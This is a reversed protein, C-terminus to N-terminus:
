LIDIGISTIQPLTGTIMEDIRQRGIIDFTLDLVWRKQQFYERRNDFTLDFLAGTVKLQDLANEIREAVKGAGTESYYEPLTIIISVKLVRTQHNASFTRDNEITRENPFLILIDGSDDAVSLDQVKNPHIRM